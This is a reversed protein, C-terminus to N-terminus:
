NMSLPQAGRYGLMQTMTDSESEQVNVMQQALQRVFDEQVHDPEVAFEMMDTAGQHHRLMLQLFYTDLEAGQLTRLKSMEETTAMGPMPPGDPDQSGMTMSPQTSGGHGHGDSHGEMWAMAEGPNNLPYYWRTLWSQMQGVQNTQSTLIDYALSRVQPDSGGYLELTAMEVAQQHHRIMDQAFGVSASDEAPKNDGDELTIRVLLGVVVGLLLVAVAGLVMLAPLQRRGSGSTHGTDADAPPSTEAEVPPPTTETKDASPAAEPQADPTAARSETPSVAATESPDDLTTDGDTADPEGDTADATNEDSHEAAEDTGHDTVEGSDDVDNAAASADVADDASDETSEESDTETGVDAAAEEATREAEVTDVQEADVQEADNQEADVQAADVQEADVNGADVDPVDAGNRSESESM